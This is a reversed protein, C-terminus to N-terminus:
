SSKSKTLSTHFISITSQVGYFHEHKKPLHKTIRWNKKVYTGCMQCQLTRFIKKVHFFMLIHNSTDCKHFSIWSSFTCSFVNVFLACWKIKTELRLYWSKLCIKSFGFTGLVPEFLWLWHCLSRLPRARKTFNSNIQWEFKLSM